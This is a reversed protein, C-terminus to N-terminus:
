PLLNCLIQEVGPLGPNYLVGIKQICAELSLKTFYSQCWEIQRQYNPFTMSVCTELM